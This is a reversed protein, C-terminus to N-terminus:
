EQYTIKVEILTRFLETQPDRDSFENGPEAHHVTVGGAGGMIGSYNRFALRIQRAVAKAGAATAAWCAFQYTPSLIGPDTGMAHVEETSVDQHVVAPLTPSQPMERPYIRTSVLANLGAYGKLYTYLATEIVM